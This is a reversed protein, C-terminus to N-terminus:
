VCILNGNKTIVIGFNNSLMNEELRKKVYKSMQSNESSTNAPGRKAVLV